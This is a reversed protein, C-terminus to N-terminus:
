CPLILSSSPSPSSGLARLGGRSAQRPTPSSPPPPPAQPRAGRLPQRAGIARTPHWPRGTRAGPGIWRFRARLRTEPLLLLLLCSLVRGLGGAAVTVAPDRSCGLIPLVRRAGLADATGGGASAADGADGAGHRPRRGGRGAGGPGARSKGGSRHAAGYRCGHRQGGGRERRGGGRAGGGGDGRRGGCTWRRPDHRCPGRGVCDNGSSARAGVRKWCGGVYM